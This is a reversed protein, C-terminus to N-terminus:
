KLTRNVAEQWRYIAERMTLDEVVETFRDHGNISSFYIKVGIGTPAREIKEILAAPVVFSDFDVPFSASFCVNTRM